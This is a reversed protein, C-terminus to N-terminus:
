HSFSFNEKDFTKMMDDKNLIAKDNIKISDIKGNKDLYVSGFEMM